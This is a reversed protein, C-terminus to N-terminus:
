ITGGIAASFAKDAVADSVALYKLTNGGNKHGLRKQVENIKAGGALMIMACSHKLVHCHKLHEPIGATSGHQVMVNHFQRRQINFLRGTKDKAYETLEPSCAQVSKDSGKLRNITVYGSRVQEATMGCIESARLGHRFATSLMIYDRQSHKRAAALLSSLESASLSNM